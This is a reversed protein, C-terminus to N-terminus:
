QLMNVRSGLCLYDTDGISLLTDDRISRSLWTICPNEHQNSLKLGQGM